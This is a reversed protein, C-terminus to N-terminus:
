EDKLWINREIGAEFAPIRKIGLPDLVEPSCFYEAPRGESRMSTNNAKIQPVTERFFLSDCDVLLNNRVVNVDVRKGMERAEPYRTLFDESQMDIKKSIGPAIRQWTARWLSDGYPTFSVAYPCDYFLNDEVTNESGGHIQVGGFEISGCREFVNGCIKVGSILDDLRIAAVGYRTGGRIDRWLNYRMEIGRMSPDLYLDFGGQDDSEYAVKEIINFEAVLDNGELTFASSPGDRLICHHMTIGCGSGTFAGNYTRKFREYDEVLTNSMVHNARKFSARDGGKMTVGSTALHRLVCGDILHSEGGEVKVAADGLNEFRCDLIRVNRGGEVKLAGRRSECFSLGSITVDECDKLTLMAKARLMSFTTAAEAPSVGEPPYWYLRGSDRDLYWEGPSDIECFLNFGFFRLGHRYAKGGVVTMSKSKTDISKIPKCADIWDYFWYGCTWPEKEDVWSDIRPDEYAFVPEQAGSNGNEVPPIITEGLAKPSIIFGENPYRALTQEAGDCYLLPRKGAKAPEGLDSIGQGKLDTWWVKGRVEPRLRSLLKRDRLKKWGNVPVSGSLVTKNEDCAIITLGKAGSISIPETLQHTGGSLYITDGPSASEIAKALDEPSVNHAPPAAQLAGAAIPLAMACIIVTLRKLM